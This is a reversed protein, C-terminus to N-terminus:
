VAGFRRRGACVKAIVLLDLWGLLWDSALRGPRVPVAVAIVIGTTKQLHDLVSTLAHGDFPNGHHDEAHLVFQDGKPSTVPTVVSVKASSM